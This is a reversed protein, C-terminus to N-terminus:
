DAFEELTEENSTGQCQRETDSNASKLFNDKFAAM